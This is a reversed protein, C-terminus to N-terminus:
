NLALKSFFDAITGRIYNKHKVYFFSCIKLELLVQIYFMSLSKFHM